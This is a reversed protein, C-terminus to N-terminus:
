NLSNVFLNFFYKYLFFKILFNGNANQEINLQRIKLFAVRPSCLREELETLNKINEDIIPFDLSNSLAIKPIKKDQIQKTCVKCIWNYDNDFYKTKLCFVKEDLETITNNEFFIEVSDQFELLGCCVCVYKPGTIISEEYEEILLNRSIFNKEEYDNDHKLKQIKDQSIPM